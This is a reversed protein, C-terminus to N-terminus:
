PAVNFYVQVGVENSWGPSLQMEKWATELDVRLVLGQVAVSHQPIPQGLITIMFDDELSLEPLISIYIGLKGLAMLRTDIMARQNSVLKIENMMLAAAGTMKDILGLNAVQVSQSLSVELSKVPFATLIDYGKVELSIVLDAEPSDVKAVPSIDGSAHSRVIYKLNDVTGPFRSLPIIETLTQGSVNFIGLLPTGTKAAGNYSGVKLIVHDHYDSYHDISKGVVSPRFTVTKGMTTIGSIQNILDINYRGPVDTIYIPGGSICRAAAHFGGYEHDTQFMDWDPVANLYQTLLANHANAWLHWPHAAPVHPYFDDSNRLVIAPRNQPMQEHFMIQPVQSMCSIARLSFHRLGAIVWADLYENILERREKASQLMDVMFQVDTKVGDIGCTDLFAYFDNYFRAVDDKGVITITGDLPVDPRGSSQRTVEATKYKKALPGNASLGGWYGLLAHWVAIQQLHPHKARIRSITNRLGGPFSQPDADFTNWGHQYQSQGVRDVDQWGDDIILNTIQIGHNALNELASEIKASSLEPGIANWTCFGLGDYWSERWLPRVERSTDIPEEQASMRSRVSRAHYMAAALTNDFTNGVVAIIIGAAAAENDNRLNLEVVGSSSGRIVTTVNNVDSTGLLVFHRGEESLFACMMADCDLNFTDIGHRPVLWPSWLRALAFWRQLTKWPRGFEVVSSSSRDHLVGEIDAQIEWLQTGPCQSMASKVRLHPNLGIVIEGLDGSTINRLPPTQRLVLGDSLGQENKIWRWTESPHSRFKLTFNRISDTSITTRYYLRAHSLTATSLSSPLVDGQDRQLRTEAWEQIGSSHWIAVEWPKEALDNPVDIVVLFRTVENTSVTAQALPPFSALRVVMDTATESPLSKQKTALSARFEPVFDYEAM